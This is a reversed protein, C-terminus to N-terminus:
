IISKMKKIMVPDAVLMKNLDLKQIMGDKEDYGMVKKSGNAVSDGNGRGKKRLM